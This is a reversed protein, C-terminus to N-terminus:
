FVQSFAQGPQTAAGLSMSVVACGSSVAWNIGALIGADGGSGQNSLVKGVYIDAQTAVGYRPLQGPQKSGCATGVTHTGHGNGDQVDQGAVFSKSVISRGAFDPHGLDLGTDLVAVRIGKGTFQSAGANTAQLGWTLQSEDSLAAAGAASAAPGLLMDVVANVGAQFARLSEHPSTGAPPLPGLRVVEDIAYVIREPEVALIGNEETALTGLQGLQDPPSSVVAVGLRDFVLGDAGVLGAPDVAGAEFDAASAM